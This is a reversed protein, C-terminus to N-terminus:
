QSPIVANNGSGSRNSTSKLIHEARMRAKVLKPVDKHNKVLLKDSHAVSNRMRSLIEQDAQDVDLINYYVAFKLMEAFSLLGSWGIDVDKEQADARRKRLIDVRQPDLVNRLDAEDLQDAVLPWVRREVAEFLVFFPLKVLSKNLDSFHVFGAIANSSLVFFFDRNSMLQPLDLISTGDSILDDARIQQIGQKNRRVYATIVGTLPVPIIDFDPYEDLLKGAQTSSEARVLATTEVMIDRVTFTGALQRLVRDIPQDM